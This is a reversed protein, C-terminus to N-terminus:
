GTAQFCMSWHRALQVLGVQYALASATCSVKGLIIKLLADAGGGPGMFEDDLQPECAESIQTPDKSRIKVVRQKFVAKAAKSIAQM